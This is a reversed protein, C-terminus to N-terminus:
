KLLCTLLGRAFQPQGASILFLQELVVLFFRLAARVRDHAGALGAGAKGRQRIADAVLANNEASGIFVAVHGHDTDGDIVLMANNVAEAKMLEANMIEVFDALTKM